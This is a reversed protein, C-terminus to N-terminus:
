YPDRHTCVSSTLTCVDFTYCFSHFLFEIWLKTTATTTTLENMRDNNRTNNKSRKKRRELEEEEEEKSEKRPTNSGNVWVNQTYTDM